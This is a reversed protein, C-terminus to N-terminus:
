GGQGNPLFGVQGVPLNFASRPPTPFIMGNVAGLAQRTYGPSSYQAIQAAAVNADNDVFVPLGSLKALWEGLGFDHWGEV